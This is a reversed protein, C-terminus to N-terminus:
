LIQVTPSKGKHAIVEGLSGPRIQRQSRHKEVQKWCGNKMSTRHKESQFCELSIQLDPKRSELSKLIHLNRKIVLDLSQHFQLSVEAQKKPAESQHHLNPSPRSSFCFGLRLKKLQSAAKEKIKTQFQVKKSAKSKLIEELKEMKKETEKGARFEIPNSIIPSKSETCVKSSESILCSDTRSRRKSESFATASSELMLGAKSAPLGEARVVARDSLKGIIGTGSNRFTIDETSNSFSVRPGKVSYSRKSSARPFSPPQPCAPLMKRTTVESVEQSTKLDRSLAENNETCTFLEIKDVAEGKSAPGAQVQIKPKGINKELLTADIELAEIGVQGANKPQLVSAATNPSSYSSDLNGTETDLEQTSNVASEQELLAKKKYYAEFFAKKNAVLGPHSHKAAEEVYRKNSFTSWKDWALTETAFRGFSVSDQLEDLQNGQLHLCRSCDSRLEVNKLCHCTINSAFLSVLKTEYSPFTFAHMVCATEGMAESRLETVAPEPSLVTIQLEAAEALRRLNPIQLIKFNSIM